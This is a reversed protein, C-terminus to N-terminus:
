NEAVAYALAYQGDWSLSLNVKTIRNLEALQKLSGRLNVEPAGVSNTTIEIEDLRVRNGDLRLSKFVAEKAAFRTAYFIDTDPREAAQDREQETFTKLFFPDAYNGDRPRIKRIDLIDTGVGHIM